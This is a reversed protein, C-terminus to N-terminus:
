ERGMRIGAYCGTIRVPVPDTIKFEYIREFAHGIRRWISKKKYEGIAGFSRWAENSFTNLGDDSFRMMVQPDSGQGTALGVGADIDLRVWDHILRKGDLWVVSGRAIREITNGDETYVTPSLEYIKGNLYDGVLQKGAFSAHCNARWRKEIGGVLTTREHWFGTAIDYVHTANATPFTFVVFKHGDLILVFSFCDSVTSYGQLAKEVSHNSIRQPTYGVIRYIVRDNGLFFLGNDEQSVAFKAGLGRTTNAAGSIQEFPFDANGSNYYPETSDEGFLWLASNFAYPRVLNDPAEEATAFDLADWLTSDLLGSINFQGSGATSVITYGDLFTVANADPFDGDSIATVSSSTVVWGDGDPNILTMQTGNNSLDVRGETGTITGISAKVGAETVTFVENGSVAYLLSGMKQMGQVEKTTGLDCFTVAGETNYLTYPYKSGEPNPEAYLNVLRAGTSAKSRAEYSQPALLIKM